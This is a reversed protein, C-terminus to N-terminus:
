ILKKIKKFTFDLDKYYEFFIRKKENEDIM